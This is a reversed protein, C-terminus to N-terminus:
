KAPETAPKLSAKFAKAAAHLPKSETLMQGWLPDSLDWDRTDPVKLASDDIVAAKIVKGAKDTVAPTVKIGLLEDLSVGYKAFIGQLAEYARPQKVRWSKADQLAFRLSMNYKITTEKQEKPAPADFLGLLEPAFPTTNM